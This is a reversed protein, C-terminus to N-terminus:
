KAGVLEYGGEKVTFSLAAPKPEDPSIEDLVETSYEQVPKELAVMLRLTRDPVIGIPEHGNEWRSITEQTVGIRHAFDASSLGLYKRLFRVEEGTLRTKKRILVNAVLRHLRAIHSFVVEREGCRCHRVPVNMLVVPIGLQHDRVTERKESMERGCEFCKM